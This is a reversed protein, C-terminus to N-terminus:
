MILILPFCKILKIIYMITDCYQKLRYTGLDPEYIISFSDDDLKNLNKLANISEDVTFISDGHSMGQIAYM